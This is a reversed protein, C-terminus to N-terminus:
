HKQKATAPLGTCVWQGGKKVVKGGGSQCDGVKIPTGGPNKRVIIDVGPIPDNIALRVGANANTSRAPSNSGYAGAVNALTIDAAALVLTGACAALMAIRIKM